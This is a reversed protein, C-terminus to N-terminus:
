ECSSRVVCRSAMVPVEPDSQSRHNEVQITRYAPCVVVDAKDFNQWVRPPLQATAWAALLPSSAGRGELRRCRRRECRDLSPKWFRPVNLRCAKGPSLFEFTLEQDRDRDRLRGDSHVPIVVLSHEATVPQRAGGRLVALVKGVRIDTGIGAVHGDEIFGPIFHSQRIVSHERPGHLPTRTSSPWTIGSGNRTRPM